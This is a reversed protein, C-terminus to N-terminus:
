ETEKKKKVKEIIKYTIIMLIGSVLYIIGNIFLPKIISPLAHELLKNGILLGISYPLFRLSSFIMGVITNIVGMYMLPKIFSWTLLGILSYFIVFIVGFVFYLNTNNIINIIYLIDNPIVM